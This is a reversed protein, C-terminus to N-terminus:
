SGGSKDKSGSSSGFWFNMIQVQAASLVGLLGTMLQSVATPVTLWGAMLGIITGFYGLTYVVSLIIQPVKGAAVYMARADKRDEVEVKYVDLGLKKCQLKFDNDIQRLVALQDPDAKAIAQEIEDQSADDTGLFKKSLFKVAMGAHPGGIATALTPALQGILSKLSM